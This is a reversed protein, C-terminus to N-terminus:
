EQGTVEYSVGHPGSERPIGFQRGKEFGALLSERKSFAAASSKCWVLKEASRCECRLNGAVSSM